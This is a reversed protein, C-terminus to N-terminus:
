PFAVIGVGILCGGIFLIVAANGSFRTFSGSVLWKTPSSEFGEHEAIRLYLSMAYGITFAVGLSFLLLPLALISEFCGNKATAGIVAVTAAVGGANALAVLKIIALAADATKEPFPRKSTDEAM